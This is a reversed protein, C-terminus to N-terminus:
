KGENYVWSFWTSVSPPWLLVSKRWKLIHRTLVLDFRLALECFKVRFVEWMNFIGQLKRLPNSSIEFIVRPVEWDASIRRDASFDWTQLILVATIYILAYVLLLDTNAVAGTQLAQYQHAEACHGCYAQPPLRYWLGQLQRRDTASWLGAGSGATWGGCWWPVCHDERAQPPQM